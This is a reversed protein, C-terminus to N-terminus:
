RNVVREALVRGEGEYDLRVDKIRPSTKWGHARFAALDLCGSKYVTAFRVELQTAQVGLVSPKDNGAGRTFQWLMPAKNPEDRFSSRGDARVLCVADVTADQTEESWTLSRFFVPAERTSLQFYAQEPDDSREVHRDWYRFPFAILPEGASAALPTTGYRGRFLGHSAPSDGDEGPPWYRPMEMTAQDGSVRVWTYHILERRGLLATGMRSPMAGMAQVPFKDDRLDSSCM